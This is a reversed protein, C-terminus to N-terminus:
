IEWFNLNNDVDASGEVIRNCALSLYEVNLDCGVYHRGMSLAVKGVTGSGSFPDLVTGGVPSGAYITRRPIGSPMVAFHAGSYQETPIDWVTKQIHGGDRTQNYYYNKSKSFLFIHEHNRAPRDTVNEPMVSPKRWIIESRLWWGADQMALAFRWPIGAMDKPKMGEPIPMVVGFSGKEGLKGFVKHTAQAEATKGAKGGGHYSDGLNVWVTGDDRLVRRVTDFVSVLSTVYDKPNQELGIQNDIRKAGCHPCIDRYGELQHNCNDKNGNLTSTNTGTVPVPKKHECTPDSGGEWTGTGYDRLGWYPPSTCVTHISQDPLQKLSERVDQGYYLTATPPNDGLPYTLITPTM